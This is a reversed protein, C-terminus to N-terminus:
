KINLLISHDGPKTASSKCLLIRGLNPLLAASLGQAVPSKHALGLNRPITSATRELFLFMGLGEEQPLQGALLGLSTAVRWFWMGHYARAHARGCPLSTRMSTSEQAHLVQDNLCAPFLPGRCRSFLVHYFKALLHSLKQPFLRNNIKEFHSLVVCIVSVLPSPLCANLRASSRHSPSHEETCHCCLLATLNWM